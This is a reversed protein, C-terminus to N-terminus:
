EVLEESRSPLVHNYKAKKCSSGTTTSLQTGRSGQTPFLRRPASSAFLMFLRCQLASCRHVLRFNCRADFMQVTADCATRMLPRPSASRSAAHCEESSLVRKKQMCMKSLGSSLQKPMNNVEAVWKRCANKICPFHRVELM